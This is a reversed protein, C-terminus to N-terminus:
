LSKGQTVAHLLADELSEGANIEHRQPEYLGALKSIESIAKVAGRSDFVYEGTEVYQQTAKDWVKVPVAQMCRDKVELLTLLASEKSVDHAELEDKMLARRYAMIRPDRVLRSGQVRASSNNKGAAYGARLAAQTGNRDVLYEVCFKREREDLFLAIESATMSKAAEADFDKKKKGM